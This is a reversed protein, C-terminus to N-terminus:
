PKLVEWLKRTLDNRVRVQAILENVDAVNLEVALVGKLQLIAARLREITEDRYDDDLVVTLASYRDSM